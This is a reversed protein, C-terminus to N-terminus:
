SAGPSLIFSLTQNPVNLNLSRAQPAYGPATARVMFGGHQLGDMTYNGSADTVASRNADPGDVITVTANAVGVYSKFNSDEPSAALTMVNGALTSFATPATPATTTMSSQCALAVFAAAFALFRIM